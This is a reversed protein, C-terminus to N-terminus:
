PNFEYLTLKKNELQLKFKEPHREQIEEMWSPGERLIIYKVNLKELSALREEPITDEDMISKWRDTNPGPNENRFSVLNAGVALSPIIDNTLTDPGGVVVVDTDDLTNLFDGIEIYQEYWRDFGPKTGGLNGKAWPLIYFAGLLLVISSLLSATYNLEVKYNKLHKIREIFQGIVWELLSAM